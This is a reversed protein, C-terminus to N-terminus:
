ITLNLLLEKKKNIDEIWVYRTKQHLSILKPQLLKIKITNGELSNLNQTFSGDSFLILQWITAFNQLTFYSKKIDINYFDIQKQKIIM